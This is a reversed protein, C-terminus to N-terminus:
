AAAWANCDRRSDKSDAPSAGGANRVSRSSPARACIGAATSAAFRTPRSNWDQSAPAPNSPLAKTWAPLCPRDVSAAQASAWVIM